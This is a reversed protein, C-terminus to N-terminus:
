HVRSARPPAPSGCAQTPSGKFYGTSSTSPRPPLAAAVQRPSWDSPRESNTSPPKATPPSAPWRRRPLSRIPRSSTNPSVPKPTSSPSTTPWSTTCNTPSAIREATVQRDAEAQKTREANEARLDAAAIRDRREKMLRGLVAAVVAWNLYLWDSGTPNTIVAVSFQVAAVAATASCALKTPYRAAVTYLALMTAVPVIAAPPHAHGAVAIYVTDVTLVVALVPLPWRSRVTLPLWALAVLTLTWPISLPRQPGTLSIVLMIPLAAATLLAEAGIRRHQAATVTAGANEESPTDTAGVAGLTGTAVPRM